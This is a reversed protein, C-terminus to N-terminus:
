RMQRVKNKMKDMLSEKAVKGDAMIVQFEKEFRAIVKLMRFCEEREDRKDWASTEINHYITNRMKELAYKVIQDNIIREAHDARNIRQQLDLNSM